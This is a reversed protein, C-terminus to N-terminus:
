THAWESVAVPLRKKSNQECENHGHEQSYQRM